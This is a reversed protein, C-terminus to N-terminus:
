IQANADPSLSRCQKKHATADSQLIKAKTDPSLSKRQKTHAAADNQLIQAKADSSLSERQKKTYLLMMIYFKLKQMLLFLSKNNKTHM